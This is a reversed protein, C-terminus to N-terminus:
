WKKGRSRNTAEDEPIGRELMNKFLKLRRYEFLTWIFLGIIFPFFGIELVRFILFLINEIGTIATLFNVSLNWALFFIATSIIYIFGLITAKGFPNKVNFLAFILIIMIVIFIIIMWIYVNSLGESLEEGNPTIKYTFTSYGNTDGDCMAIVSYKGLATTKNENISYNYFTNRYTMTGNDVVISSNPAIITVTCNVSSTCVSNNEDFCFIIIDSKEGQKFIYSEATVTSSLLLLLIGILFLKKM